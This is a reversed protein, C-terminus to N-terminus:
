KVPSMQMGQDNEAVAQKEAVIKSFDPSAQDVKYEPYFDDRILEGTKANYEKIEGTFFVDVGYGHDIYGSDHYYQIVVSNDDGYVKFDRNGYETGLNDVNLLKKKFYTNLTYEGHKRKEFLTNQRTEFVFDGVSKKRLVKSM